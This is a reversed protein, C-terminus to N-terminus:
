CVSVKSDGSSLVGSSTMASSSSISSNLGEYSTAGTPMQFVGSSGSPNYAAFMNGAAAAAYAGGGSSPFASFGPTHSNLMPSKKQGQPRQYLSTCSYMPLHGSFEPLRPSAGGGRSNYHFVDGNTLPSVMPPSTLPSFPTSNRSTGSLSGLAFVAIQESESFDEWITSGGGRGDPPLSDGSISKRGEEGGATAEPPFVDISHHRTMGAAGAAGGGGHSHIRRRKESSFLAHHHHHHDGPKRRSDGTTGGDLATSLSRKIGPVVGGGAGGMVTPSVISTTPSNLHKSCLGCKQSEKWCEEVGCLRRWQKGNFKKKVGEPTVIIEGKKAGKYDKLKIRQGRQFSSSYYDIQQQQQHHHPQILPTAQTAVATPTHPHAPPLHPPPPPPPPPPLTAAHSTPLQPPPHPPAQHATPPSTTTYYSSKNFVETTQQQQQPSSNLPPPPNADMYSPLAGLTQMPGYTPTPSSSKPETPPPKSSSARRFPSSVEINFISSEPEQSSISKDLSHMSTTSTDSVFATGFMDILGPTCLTTKIGKLLRLSDVPWWTNRYLHKDEQRTHDSGRENPFPEVRFSKHPQKIEVIKGPHYATKDPVLPACVLTGLKLQTVSPPANPIISVEGTVASTDSRSNSPNLSYVLTLGSHRLRVEVSKEEISSVTAQKFNGKWKVLVSEGVLLDAMVQSPSLSPPLSPPLYPPLSSLPPLSPTLSFLSSLSPPLPSLPLFPPSPPLSSPPSHTLSFLM